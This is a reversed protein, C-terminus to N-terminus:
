ERRATKLGYKQLLRHLHVRDIGARKAARTVNGDTSRLLAELYSREFTDIVRQKAVFFPTEAQPPASPTAADAPPLDLIVARQVANRLERVNGPWDHHALAAVSEPTFLRRAGPAAVADLFCAVLDPIDERRERLAPLRVTVVSLRFFLDERFTGRNVEHELERHTAALVRVDLKRPTTEGLRRVEHTEIARLLMPQTELPLEGIEDLLITGGSAAEFAGARDRDAGTFAGRAHGFLEAAVLPAPMAGCDVVVFPKEARPSRAVIEGAVLEKGTGSEGRILVTAETPAVRDILGFVRRM